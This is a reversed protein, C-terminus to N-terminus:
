KANGKATASGANFGTRTTAVTITAAAGKKLGTVTVLGSNSVSVKGASATLKWTFAKNYNTIQVTFGDSTKTIAGFQANLAAGVNASGTVTGTGNAYGERTTTVTVKASGNADLNTVTIQGTKSISVEGATTTAKYTFAANYGNIQVTFGFDKKAVASFTPNLAAGLNASGVVATAGTAYGARTTTVTVTSSQGPALGTVTIGGTKSIEAKGVTAKAAWTYKADFNSVAVSFGADAKTVAGFKPTLAALLATGTIDATGDEYGDQTTNVTVTASKGAGLGTVTIKGTADDITAKGASPIVEFAFMDDYNTVDVKFGDATAVPKSFEPTLAPELAADASVTVDLYAKFNGDASVATVTAKGAALAEYTGDELVSLVKGNSSSYTITQNTADYPELAAEFM